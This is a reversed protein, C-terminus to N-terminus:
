IAEGGSNLPQGDGVKKKLGEVIGDWDILALMIQLPNETDLLRLAGVEYKGIRYNWALAEVALDAANAISFTISDDEVQKETPSIGALVKASLDVLGQYEPKAESAWQGDTAIVLAQPALRAIPVHWANGDGLIIDRGNIRKKRQLDTPKPPSQPDFGIWYGGADFWTQNDLDYTLPLTGDGGVRVLVGDCGGPGGSDVHRQSLPMGDVLIYGCGADVVATSSASIIRPIFYVFTM